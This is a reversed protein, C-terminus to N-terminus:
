RPVGGLSWRRSEGAFGRCPSRRPRPAPGGLGATGMRGRRRLLRTRPRGRPLVRADGSSGVTGVDDEDCTRAPADGQLALADDAPRRPRGIGPVDLEDRQVGRRTRERAGVQADAEVVPLHPGLIQVRGVAGDHHVGRPLPDSEPGLPAGGDNRARDKQERILADGHLPAGSPPAPPIRLASSGREGTRLRPRGKPLGLRAVADASGWERAPVVAGVGGCVRAPRGCMPTSSGGADAAAAAVRAGFSAAGQRDATNYNGSSTDVHTGMQALLQNMDTLSQSWEAKATLYQTQAEGTWESQTPKLEGDMSELDSSIAQSARALESSANSLSGYDVLMDESM